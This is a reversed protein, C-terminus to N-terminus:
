HWIALHFNDTGSLMKTMSLLYIVPAHTIAATPAQAVHLQLRYGVGDQWISILEHFIGILLPQYTLKKRITYSLGQVLVPDELSRFLHSPNSADYSASTWSSADVMHWSLTIADNKHTRDNDYIKPLNICKYQSVPEISLLVERM